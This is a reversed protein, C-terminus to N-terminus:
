NCPPSSSGTHKGALHHWSSVEFCTSVNWLWNSPACTHRTEVVCSFTLRPCTLRDPMGFHTSWVPQYVLVACRAESIHHLLYCVCRAEALVFIHGAYEEHMMVRECSTMRIVSHWEPDHTMVKRLESSGLGSFKGCTSARTKEVWFVCRWRWRSQRAWVGVGGWSGRWRVRKSISRDFYLWVQLSSLLLSSRTVRGSSM